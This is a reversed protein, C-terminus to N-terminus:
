DWDNDWDFDNSDNDNDGYIGLPLKFYTGPCIYTEGGTGRVRIDFGLFYNAWISGQFGAKIAKEKLRFEVLPGLAIGALGIGTQAETYLRIKQKEFEIAGDFSYPFKDYNWYALEISFSWRNKEGGINYHLMPGLMWVENKQAYTQGEILVLLFLSAILAKM